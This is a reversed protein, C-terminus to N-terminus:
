KQRRPKKADKAHTPLGKKTSRKAVPRTPSQHVATKPQIGAASETPHVRPTPRASSRPSVSSRLDSARSPEAVAIAYERYISGGDPAISIPESYLLREKKLIVLERVDADATAEPSASPMRGVGAFVDTIRQSWTNPKPEVRTNDRTGPKTDLKIRFYGHEDTTAALPKASASTSETLRVTLGELPALETNSVFGHVVDQNTAIAVLAREVRVQGRQAMTQLVEAREISTELAAIRPDNEMASRSVRRLELRQSAVFADPLISLLTALEAASDLASQGAAEMPGDIFQRRLNDASQTDAFFGPIVSWRSQIAM